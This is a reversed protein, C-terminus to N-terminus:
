SYKLGTMCTHLSSKLNTSNLFMCNPQWRVNYVLGIRLAAQFNNGNLAWHKFICLELLHSLMYMYTLFHSSMYQRVQMFQGTNAACDYQQVPAHIMAPTFSRTGLM